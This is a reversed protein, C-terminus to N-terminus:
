MNELVARQEVGSFSEALEITTHVAYVLAMAILICGIVFFKEIWPTAKQSLYENNALIM